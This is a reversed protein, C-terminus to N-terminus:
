GSSNGLQFRHTDTMADAKTVFTLEFGDTPSLAQPTIAVEAIQWGEIATSAVCNGSDVLTSSIVM